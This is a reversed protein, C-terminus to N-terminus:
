SVLSGFCEPACETMDSAGGCSPLMGVVESKLTGVKDDVEDVEDVELGLSAGMALPVFSLSTFLITLRDRREYTSCRRVSRSKDLQGLM